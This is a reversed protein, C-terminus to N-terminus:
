IKEPCTLIMIPECYSARGEAEGWRGGEGGVVRLVAYHQPVDGLCCESLVSVVPHPNLM